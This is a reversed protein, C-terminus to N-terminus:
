LSVSKLFAESQNRGHAASPEDAALYANEAWRPFFVFGSIPQPHVCISASLVLMVSTSGSADDATACRARKLDRAQYAHWAEQLPQANIHRRACEVALGSISAETEGGVAAAFSRGDGSLPQLAGTFSTVLAEFQAPKLSVSTLMRAIPAVQVPSSLDAAFRQMLHFPEEDAVEKQASRGRRLKAL